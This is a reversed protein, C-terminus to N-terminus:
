VVTGGPCPGNEATVQAVIQPPIAQTPDIQTIDLAVYQTYVPQVGSLFAAETLFFGLQIDASKSPQWRIDLITVFTTIVGNPQTSTYSLGVM